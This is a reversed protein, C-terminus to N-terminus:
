ATVSEASHRREVHSAFFSKLLTRHAEESGSFSQTSFGIECLSCRAKCYGIWNMAILTAKNQKAAKKSAM